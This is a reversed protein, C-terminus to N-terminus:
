RKTRVEVHVVGELGLVTLTEADPLFAPPLAVYLQLLRFPFLPLKLLFEQDTM